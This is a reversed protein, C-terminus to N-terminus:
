GGLYEVPVKVVLKKLVDSKGNVNCGPKHPENPLFIAFMNPQLILENKDEIYPALQYDEEERYNDYLDASPQQLGYEIMEQGRILLQIDIYKQHMEAQKESAPETTFEMVNMRIDDLLTQWGLPLNALDLTKLQECLTVFIPSLGLQYDSRNLDGLLM